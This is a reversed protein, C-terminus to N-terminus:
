PTDTGYIGGNVRRGGDHLNRNMLTELHEVCGRM